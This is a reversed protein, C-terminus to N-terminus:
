SLRGDVSLDDYSDRKTRTNKNKSKNKHEKNPTVRSVLTTDSTDGGRTDGTDSDLTVPTVVEFAEPNDFRIKYLNSLNNNKGVGKRTVKILVGVSELRRVARMVTRKDVGVQEAVHEYSTSTTQTDANMYMLIQLLVAKATSDGTLSKMAWRPFPLFAGGFKTSGSM